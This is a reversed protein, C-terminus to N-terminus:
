VEMEIRHNRSEAAKRCRQIHANFAAGPRIVGQGRASHVAAILWRAPMRGRAVENALSRYYAQSGHDRFLTALRVTAATVEAATAGPGLRSLARITEAQPDDSPGPDPTPMGGIAEAVIADREAASVPVVPTIAAVKPTPIDYGLDRVVKRWDFTNTENTPPPSDERTGPSAPGRAQEQPEVFSIRPEPHGKSPEDQRICEDPHLESAAHPHTLFVLRRRGRKRVSRLIGMDILDRIARGATAESVSAKSAVYADGPFCSPKGRAIDLLVLLVLKSRGRLGDTAKLSEEFARREAGSLQPKRRNACDGQRAVGPHALSTM